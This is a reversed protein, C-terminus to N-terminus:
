RIGFAPATDEVPEAGVSPALWYGEHKFVADDGALIRTQIVRVCDVVDKGCGDYLRGEFIKFNQFGEVTATFRALRPSSSDDPDYSETITCGSVWRKNRSIVKWM